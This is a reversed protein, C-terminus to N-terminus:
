LRMACSRGGPNHIPLVDPALVAWEYWARDPACRRWLQVSLSAGAAVHVPRSFPLFLPFWSFMGDSFTAPNISIMVDDFLQAEFYGALGHVQPARGLRPRVLM